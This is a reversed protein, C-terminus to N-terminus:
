AAECRGGPRVDVPKRSVRVRSHAVLPASELDLTKTPNM